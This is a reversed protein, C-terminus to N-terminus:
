ISNRNWRYRRCSSRTPPPPVVCEGGSLIEDEGLCGTHPQSLSLTNHQLNLEDNEQSRDPSIMMFLTLVACQMMAYSM